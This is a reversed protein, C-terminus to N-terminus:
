DAQLPTSQPLPSDACEHVPPPAQFETEHDTAAHIPRFTLNSHLVRGSHWCNSSVKKETVYAHAAHMISIYVHYSHLKALTIIQWVVYIYAQLASKQVSELM